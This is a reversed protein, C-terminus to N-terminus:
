SLGESSSESRRDIDGSVPRRVHTKRKVKRTARQQTPSQKVTKDLNGKNKEDVIKWVVRTKKDQSDPPIEPRTNSKKSPLGEFMEWSDDINPTSKTHRRRERIKTAEDQGRRHVETDDSFAQVSTSASQFAKAVKMKALLNRTRERVERHRRMHAEEDESRVEESNGDQKDGCPHM